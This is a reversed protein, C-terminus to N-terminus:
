PHPLRILDTNGLGAACQRPPQIGPDVREDLFLRAVPQLRGLGPRLGFGDFGGGFM